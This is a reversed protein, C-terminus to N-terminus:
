SLSDLHLRLAVQADDAQLGPSAPPCSGWRCRRLRSRPGPRRGGVHGLLCPARRRASGPFCSPGPRRGARSCWLCGRAVAPRRSGGPASGPLGLASGSEELDDDGAADADGLVVFQLGLDLSQHALDVAAVRLHPPHGDVVEKSAHGGVFQQRQIPRGVDSQDSGELIPHVQHRLLEAGAAQILFGHEDETLEGARRCLEPAPSQHDVRVVHLLRRVGDM